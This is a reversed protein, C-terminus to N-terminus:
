HETCSGPRNLTLLASHAANLACLHTGAVHLSASIYTPQLATGTETTATFPTALINRTGDAYVSLMSVGAAAELGQAAGLM